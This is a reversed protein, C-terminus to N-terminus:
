RCVTTYGTTVECRQSTAKCAPVHVGQNELNREAENGFRRRLVPDDTAPSLAPDQFGSGLDLRDGIAQEPQLVRPHLEVIDLEVLLHFLELEDVRVALRERVRAQTLTLVVPM